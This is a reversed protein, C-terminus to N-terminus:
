VREARELELAACFGGRVPDEAIPRFGVATALEDVAERSLADPDGPLEVIVLLGGRRLVRALEAVCARPDPVEGLVAVLFAVDFADPRYPLRSASGCTFHANSASARRVRQRAMRLMPVQLDLLELRGEPVARAVAPSFFGPGPGIELVASDRRLRLAEVLQKRSFVLDRLPLRLLFALEHPYVGRGHFRAWIESWRAM